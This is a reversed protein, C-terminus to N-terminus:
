GDSADPANVKAKPWQLQQRPTKKRKVLLMRKRKVPRVGKMNLFRILFYAWM